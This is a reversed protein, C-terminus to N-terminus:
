EELLTKLAAVREQWFPKMRAAAEEDPLKEHEVAVQSRGGDLAACTVSLRTGDSGVDFRISRNPHATREHLTVDTLWRDRVEPDTFAAFLREVPVGVTKSAGVSFTGDPRIGPPRIGRSQQYEVILKQAWWDSLGQDGVLWDAIQRYSRDRAGWADLREFWDQRGAGTAKRLGADPRTESEPREMTIMSTEKTGPRL